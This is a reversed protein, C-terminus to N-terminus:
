GKFQQVDRRAAQMSDVLDFVEPKLKWRDSDTYAHGIIGIVDCAVEIQWEYLACMWADETIGENGAEHDNKFWLDWAIDDCFRHTKWYWSQGGDVIFAEHYQDGRDIGVGCFMCPRMHSQHARRLIKSLVQM